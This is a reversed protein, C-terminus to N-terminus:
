YDLTIAFRSKTQDYELWVKYQEGEILNNVPVEVNLAIGDIEITANRGEASYEKVKCTVDMGSLEELEHIDLGGKENEQLVAKYVGEKYYGDIEKDLLGYRNSYAMYRDTNNDKLMIISYMAKESFDNAIMDKLEINNANKIMLIKSRKIFLDDKVEGTYKPQVTVDKDDITYKIDIINSTKDSVVVAYNCEYGDIIKTEGKEITNIVKSYNEGTDYKHIDAISVEQVTVSLKEEKNSRILVLMIISIMAVVAISIYYNYKKM